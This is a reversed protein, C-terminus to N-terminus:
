RHPHLVICDVERRKYNPRFFPDEYARIEISDVVFGDPISCHKFIEKEGLREIFAKAVLPNEETNKRSRLVLEFSLDLRETNQLLGTGFGKELLTLTFDNAFGFNHLFTNPDPIYSALGNTYKVVAHLFGNRLEGEFRVRTEIRSIRQDVAVSVDKGETEFHRTVGNIRVTLLTLNGKKKPILSSRDIKVFEDICYIVYGVLLAIGILFSGLVSKFPYGFIACFASLLFFYFSLIGIIGESYRLPTITDILARLKKKSTDYIDDLSRDPNTREKREVKELIRTLNESFEVRRNNENSTLISTFIGVLTLISAGVTFSMAGWTDPRYQETPGIETFAIVVLVAAILVITLYHHRRPSMKSLGSTNHTPGM